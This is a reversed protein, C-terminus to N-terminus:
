KGELKALKQLVAKNLQQRWKDRYTKARDEDLLALCFTQIDGGVLVSVELNDAASIELLDVLEEMLPLTKRGILDNSNNWIVTKMEEWALQYAKPLQQVRVELAKFTKTIDSGTIKEILKM